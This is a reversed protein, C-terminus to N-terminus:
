RFLQKIKGWTTQAPLENGDIASAMGSCSPDVCWDSFDVCWLLGPDDHCDDILAAIEDPDTTGWWNGRFALTDPSPTAAVRVQYTCEDVLFNAAFRTRGGLRVRIADGGDAANAFLTNGVFTCSDADSTASIMVAAGDDATNWAVLNETAVLRTNFLALGGGWYGASNHHISNSRLITLEADDSCLGGGYGVAYNGVIVNGEIMCHGYAVYIGGGCQTGGFGSATNAEVTNGEIVASGEVVSIGGGDTASNAHITNNIIHVDSFWAGIGGGEFESRCDTIVNGSIRPSAFECRIGGGRENTFGGTFSFGEIATESGVGQCVVVSGWHVGEIDVVTVSPGAESVLVVGDAGPGMLISEPYTGPAVLVTDGYSAADIGEQITLYDGGGSGDVRIINANAAAPWAVGCALTFSLWIRSSTRMGM